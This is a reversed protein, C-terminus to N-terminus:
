RGTFVSTGGKRGRQFRGRVERGEEEDERNTKRRKAQENGRVAKRYAADM